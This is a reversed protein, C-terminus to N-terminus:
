LNSQHCPTQFQEKECDWKTVVFFVKFDLSSNSSMIFELRAIRPLELRLKSSNNTRVSCSSYFSTKTCLSFFLSCFWYSARSAPAIRVGDISVDQEKGCQLCKLTNVTKRDLQHDENENHCVRCPYVKNNCCPTQPNYICCKM